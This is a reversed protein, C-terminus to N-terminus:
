RQQSPLKLMMWKLKSVILARMRLGLLWYRLTGGVTQESWIVNPSKSFPKLTLGGMITDDPGLNWKNSSDEHRQCLFWSSVKPRWADTDYSRKLIGREWTYTRLTFPWLNGQPFSLLFLHWICKSHHQM